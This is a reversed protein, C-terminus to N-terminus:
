RWGCLVFGFITGLVAAFCVMMQAASQTLEAPIVPYMIPM